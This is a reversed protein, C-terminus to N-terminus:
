VPKEGEKLKQTEQRSIGGWEWFIWGAAHKGEEEGCETEEDFQYARWDPWKSLLVTPSLGDGGVDWTTTNVLRTM